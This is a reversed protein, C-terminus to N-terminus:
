NVYLATLGVAEAANGTFELGVGDSGWRTVKMRVTVPGLTHADSRGIPQLSMKVEAGVPWRDRTVLYIGSTSLDRIADIKHAAGDASIRYACDIAQAALPAPNPGPAPREVSDALRIATIAPSLDPSTAPCIEPSPLTRLRWEMEKPACILLQNGLHTQSSALTRAPLALVSTAGAHRPIRRLVPVSEVVHVVRHEADLYILDRISFLRVAKLPKIWCGEDIRRSGIGLWQKFRMFPRDGLTAGLSLFCENTQNYICYLPHPV